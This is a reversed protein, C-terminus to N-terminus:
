KPSFVIIKNPEEKELAEMECITEVRYFDHGPGPKQEINEGRPCLKLHVKLTLDLKSTLGRENPIYICERM